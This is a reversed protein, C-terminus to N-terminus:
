TNKRVQPNLPVLKKLVQSNKKASTKRVFQHVVIQIIHGIKRSISHLSNTHLLNTNTKNCISIICNTNTMTMTIMTISDMISTTDGPHIDKVDDKVDEENDSENTYQDDMNTMFRMNEMTIWSLFTVM